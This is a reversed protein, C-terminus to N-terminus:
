FSLDPVWLRACPLISLISQAEADMPSEGRDIIAAIQDIFVQIDHLADGNIEPLSEIYDELMYAIRAILPFWFTGGQVKITHIHRRLDLFAEDGGDDRSIRGLLGELDALMDQSSNVYEQRPKRPVAEIDTDTGFKGMRSATRDAPEVHKWTLEIAASAFTLEPRPRMKSNNPNTEVSEGGGRGRQLSIDSCEAIVRVARAYSLVLYDLANPIGM